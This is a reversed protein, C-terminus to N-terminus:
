SEVPTRQEKAPVSKKRVGRVSPLWVMIIEAFILPVFSFFYENVVRRFAPDPISGFLFDLSYVDDIRVAVFALVCIYSRVMMQRHVKTNRQLIARWALATSLVAFVTLLFLSIRCPVCTSILSLRGASLGIMAIGAMYIRGSVRHFRLYKKRVFAWFQVPGLFLTLTGGIMHLSVWFQNHWFSNGFMRSRYGYFYAVVNDLFFYVSLAIIFTWAFVVATSRLALM